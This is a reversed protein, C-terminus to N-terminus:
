CSWKLVWPLGVVARLGLGCSASHHELVSPHRRPGGLEAGVVVSPGVVAHLVVAVDVVPQWHGCAWPLLVLVVSSPTGQAPAQHCGLATVVFPTRSYDTSAVVVLHPVQPQPVPPRMHCRAEGEGEGVRCGVVVEEVVQGALSATAIGTLSLYLFFVTM